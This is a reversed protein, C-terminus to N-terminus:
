PILEFLWSFLTEFGGLMGSLALIMFLILLPCGCCLCGPEAFVEGCSSLTIGRNEALHTFCVRGLAYASVLACMPDMFEGISVLWVARKEKPHRRLSFAFRGSNDYAVFGNKNVGSQPKIELGNYYITFDKSILARKLEALVHERNDRLDFKYAARHKAEIIMEGKNNEIWVDRGVRPAKAVAIPTQGGREFILAEHGSHELRYEAAKIEM